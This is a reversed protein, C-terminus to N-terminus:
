AKIGEAIIPM